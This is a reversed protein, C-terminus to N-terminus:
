QKGNDTPMQYDEVFWCKPRAGVLVTQDPNSQKQAQCSYKFADKQAEVFRETIDLGNDHWSKLGPIVGDDNPINCLAGSFSIDVRCQPSPYDYDFLPTHRVRHDRRTISVQSGDVKSYYSHSTTMVRYCFDQDFEAQYITDCYARIAPYAKARYTANTALDTGWLKRTCIHTAYYDASGEDAAWSNDFGLEVKFPFGGLFHGLEHCVVLTYEDETLKANRVLGGYLEVVWEKGEDRKDASANEEPSNWDSEFVLKAGFNHQILPRYVALIGDITSKFNQEDNIPTEGAISVHHDQYTSFDGALTGVSNFSMGLIVLLSIRVLNM